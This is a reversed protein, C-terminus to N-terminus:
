TELRIRRPRAEAITGPLTSLVAGVFAGRYGVSRANIEVFGDRFLRDAAVQVKAIDVWRGKPSRATGVLVMDGEVRIIQNRRGTMTPITSGVLGVLHSRIDPARRHESM